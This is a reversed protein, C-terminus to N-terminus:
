LQGASEQGALGSAYDPDEFRSPLFARAHRPPEVGAAHAAALEGVGMGAMIGFGSLGGCVVFGDPGAPGVLPRNDAAKTYYGGDVVPMPLRDRYGSMGPLMASMGRIVVEPYLPDEPLPWVPEVVTRRYEWLALVWTSGSGGEPRGHCAVPLEGTLEGRGEAELMRREEATWDLRQPDSWILMPADRHVVGLHDRFAIKRHVESHVPLEVGATRAVHAVLPGAADVVRPATVVEGDDLRVGSVGGDEVLVERAARDVFRVGRERARELMVAGLQQASIWGARRVHLAGVARPTLGPFHRRVLDGGVLVDAGTLREGPMLAANPRYGANEEHIRLPGAGYGSIRAGDSSFASLRAPDATAFLYGRRTLHFADNTEDALAELLDISRDVLAVMPETPWWNRFCETSKDSTLGFPPGQDCLVVHRMGLRTTLHHATAVGAIGAGVVIAEARM